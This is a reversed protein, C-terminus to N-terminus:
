SCNAHKKIFSMIEVFVEINFSKKMNTEERKKMRICTIYVLM